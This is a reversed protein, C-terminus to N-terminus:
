RVSTDQANRRWSRTEYPNLGKRRPHCGAYQFSARQRSAHFSHSGEQTLLPNPPPRNSPMFLNFYWGRAREWFLLPGSISWKPLVGRRKNSLRALLLLGEPRDWTEKSRSAQLKGSSAPLAPTVGLAASSVPRGRGARIEDRRCPRGKLGSPPLRLGRCKM